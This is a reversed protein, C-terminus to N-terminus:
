IVLVISELADGRALIKGIAVTQCYGLAHLAAICANIRKAPVSALLGGATQPDFILPYRPHKVMAEQNYLARRLRVNASQLSSVIGAAVCEEAGDLLPLDSLTLEADVAASRTM